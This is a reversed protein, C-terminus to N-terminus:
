AMAAGHAQEELHAVSANLAKTLLGSFKSKMMPVMLKGIIGMGPEFDMSFTLRSRGEGTPEVTVTAVASKMPMTTEYIEVVMQRGPTYGVIKERLWNKGDALDCQRQAGQGTAASNNILRSARINPNFRYINAFDDWQAWTQEAPANIDKSLTVNAM